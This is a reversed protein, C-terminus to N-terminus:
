GCRVVGGADGRHADIHLIFIHAGGGAAGARDFAAAVVRGAEERTFLGVLHTYSVSVAGGRRDSTM